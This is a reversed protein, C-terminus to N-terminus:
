ESNPFGEAVMQTLTVLEPSAWAPSPPDQTGGPPSGSGAGSGGHTSVVPGDSTLSFVTDSPVSVEKRSGDASDFVDAKYLQGDIHWEKRGFPSFDRYSPVADDFAHLLGNRHYCEHTMTKVSPVRKGHEFLFAHPVWNGHHLKLTRREYNRSPNVIKCLTGDSCEIVQEFGLPDVFPATM